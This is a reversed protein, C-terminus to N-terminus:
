HRSLLSIWRLSKPTWSVTSHTQWKCDEKSVEVLGARRAWAWVFGSSSPIGEEEPGSVGVLGSAAFRSNAPATAGGNPYAGHTGEAIGAM